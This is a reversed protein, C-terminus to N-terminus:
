HALRTWEGHRRSILNFAERVHGERDYLTIRVVPRGHERALDLVFDGALLWTEWGREFALWEGENRTIRRAVPELLPPLRGPADVPLAGPPIGAESAAAGGLVARVLSPQSLSQLRLTKM